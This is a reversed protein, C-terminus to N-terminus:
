PAGKTAPKQPTFGSMLEIYAVGSGAACTGEFEQFDVRRLGWAAIIAVLGGLALVFFGFSRMDIAAPPTRDSHRLGTSTDTLHGPGIADSKESSDSAKRLEACSRQGRRRQM